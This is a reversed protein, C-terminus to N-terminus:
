LAHWEGTGNNDYRKSVCTDCSLRHQQQQRFQWYCKWTNQISIFSVYQNMSPEETGETSWHKMRSDSEKQKFKKTVNRTTHTQKTHISEAKTLKFLVEAENRFCNWQTNKWKLIKFVHIEKNGDSGFVIL